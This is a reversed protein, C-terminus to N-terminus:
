KLLEALKSQLQPGRLNSAIIEGNPNLLVNYPIGEIGYDAVVSSRWQQLDSIHKWTLNDTKIANLWATKDNDLSVGLITFNKDKFTNYAAVVNPNEGRCPGCWSAWFDVLVYKGKLSSLSFSKGQTDPMTIEPAQKGTPATEKVANSKAVMANFQAVITEIGTHGKFRTTLNAVPKELLKPDVNQTYGLAFLAMIPNSTTDIYNVIFNKYEAKTLEFKDNDAKKMSDTVKGGNNLQVINGQENLATNYGDMKTAFQKLLSNAPSIFTPWKMTPDKADVTFAIVPKDNIFFYTDKENEFRVRYLGQEPAISSLSFKGEKLEATDVITAAKNSFYLEELYVQQNPINKVNANVTFKGKVDENNCSFLLFSISLILLTKKMKIKTKVMLFPLIKKTLPLIIM